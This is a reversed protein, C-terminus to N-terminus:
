IFFNNYFVSYKKKKSIVMLIYIGNDRRVKIQDAQQLVLVLINNYSELMGSINANVVLNIMGVIVLYIFWEHLKTAM